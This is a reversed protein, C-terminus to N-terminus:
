PRTCSNINSMGILPVAVTFHTTNVLKKISPLLDVYCNTDPVLYKPAIHIEYEKKSAAESLVSQMCMVCTYAHFMQVCLHSVPQVIYQVHVTYIFSDCSCVETTEVAKKHEELQRALAERQAQM